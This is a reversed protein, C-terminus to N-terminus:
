RNRDIFRWINIDCAKLNKVNVLDKENSPKAAGMVKVKVGPPFSGHEKVYEIIEKNDDKQCESCESNNNNNNNNVPFWDSGKPAVLEEKKNQESGKPESTKDPAIVDELVAMRVGEGYSGQSPELVTNMLPELTEFSSYHFVNSLINQATKKNKILNSEKLFKIVKDCQEPHIYFKATELFTEVYENHKPYVLSLYSFLEIYANKFVTNRLLDCYKDYDLEYMKLLLKLTEFLGLNAVSFLLRYYCNDLKIYMGRDMMTVLLKDIQKTLDKNELRDKEKCYSYNSFRRTFSALEDNLFRGNLCKVDAGYDVLYQLKPLIDNTFSADFIKLLQENLFEQKQKDEMKQKIPQNRNLYYIM